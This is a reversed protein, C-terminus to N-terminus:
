PQEQNATDSPNDTPGSPTPRKPWRRRALTQDDRTLSIQGAEVTIRRSGPLDVVRDGAGPDGGDLEHLTDEILDIQLTAALQEVETRRRVAARMMSEIAAGIIVVAGLVLLLSMGRRNPWPQRTQISAETM